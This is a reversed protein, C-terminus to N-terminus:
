NGGSKAPSETILDHFCLASSMCIVGRPVRQVEEILNPTELSQHQSHCINGKWSKSSYKIETLMATERLTSLYTNM